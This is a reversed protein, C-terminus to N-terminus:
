AAQRPAPRASAAAGASGARSLLAQTLVGGVGISTIALLAAVSLTPVGSLGAGLTCGGALVGGAGMLVGGAMYRGTQGPSTFTQWTFGGFILTGVLAGLVIGGMFGTGFGAPISSSAIAFFLAESSASTTSLSEMVIPDFDDYLLYGTGVWAIPVLLGIGGAMILHRAPTGSFAAYALLPAAMVAAWVLAGGPLNGISTAAGMDVTVSGLAVRMPALVGKLTAHAVVAFILIVMLARLNGTGTLVTLRSICGRTLIMGAGFALGGAIIAMAPMQSVMFRHDDFSIWGAAVTAQTGLIAVALATVWIAAAQRRDEGVLARRFCFRTRQGLFGFTLGLILALVVSAQRADLFEIGLSEYM